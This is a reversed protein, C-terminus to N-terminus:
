AEFSGDINQGSVSMFQFNRLWTYHIYNSSVRKLSQFRYLEEELTRRRKKLGLEQLTRDRRYRIHIEADPQQKSELKHSTGECRWTKTVAPSHLSRLILAPQFFRPLSFAAFWVHDTIDRGKQTTESIAVLPWEEAPMEECREEGHADIHKCGRLRYLFVSITGVELTLEDGENDVVHNLMLSFLKTFSKGRGASRFVFTGNHGKRNGSKFYVKKGATRDFSHRIRSAVLVGDIHLHERLCQGNWLFHQPYCMRVWFAKGCRTEIYRVIKFQADGCDNSNIYEQDVIGEDSTVNVHLGPLTLLFVM